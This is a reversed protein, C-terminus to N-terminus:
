GASGCTGLGCPELINLAREGDGHPVKRPQLAAPGSGTIFIPVAHEISENLATVIGNTDIGIRVQNGRVWVGFPLQNRAPVRLVPAARCFVNDM